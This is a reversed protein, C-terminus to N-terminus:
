FDFNVGLYFSREQPPTLYSVNSGGVNREQPNSRERATEPDQGTYDTFTLLNTAGFRIRANVGSAIQGINYKLEINRLRAYSADELWLSTNNQWYNSNGGWNLMTTTLRPTNTIDGAQQWRDLIRRDYNWADQMTIVGQQRKAADDYIKGGLSFVWLFDLSLDKYTFSNTMGGIVDPLSNGLSTRDASVDFNFTEVREGDVTTLYVPRGTEPDVYAFEIIYNTAVDEGEVVRTDGFGGALADPPANGTSIVRNDNHAFNLSTTWSFNPKVINNSTLQVEVGTNRIIGANQFFINDGEEVGSSAQVSTGIFVEDTTQNYYVVSGSLRDNWLGFEVGAEYITNVEWQLDPNPQQTQFQLPEGAYNFGADVTGQIFAYNAFQERWNIGANGTVGVSGRLKLFNFATKDKLFDEETLKWGLGLAPFNGFRRNPGFRSSGDRRFTLQALYKNDYAYNVRTFGSLFKTRDIDYNAQGDLRIDDGELTTARYTVDDVNGVYSVFEGRLDRSQYETGVLVDLDHRDGLEFNYQATAFTSWNHAKTNWNNSRNMGVGNEFFQTLRFDEFLYNNLDMYDYNFTANLSLNKIGTYTLAASNISRVEVNNLDRYENIAVPNRGPLFFTGDDNRVPFFPLAYSQALGISSSLPDVQDLFSRALSSTLAINFSEIPRIDLNVRASLREFENGVLYSQADTYSAGVYSRFKESGQTMSLNYEQKIGTRLVEDYWNTNTQEALEYSGGASVYDNPLPARGVGGDNEWAEQRIQLLETNNLLDLTNTPESTAFRTNFNFSPKGKKGRKTTILVVGNAGRSGYIATASADKLIVISEIDNPNISNLPNNQNNGRNEQLFQDQTIPIGDVVYLPDGNATISGTGRVRILAGAGAMGSSQVVQVGAAKGQLSTEVSGGVIDNLDDSKIESLNGVADDIRQTGYGVVVIEGLLEANANLAFDLTVSQGDVVTVKKTQTTLGVYSVSVDYQGAPLTLEYNGDFDTDTGYDTGDIFVNAGIIPEKLDDIINGKVTGQAHVCLGIGMLLLLSFYGKWKM